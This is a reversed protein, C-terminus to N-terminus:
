KMINNIEKKVLTCQLAVQEAFNHQLISDLRSFEAELDQLQLSRTERLNSSFLITNSRIFDKIADWLARPDEM